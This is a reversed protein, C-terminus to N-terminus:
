SSPLERSDTSEPAQEQEERPRRHRSTTPPSPPAPPTNRTGYVGAAGLGAIALQQWDEVSLSGDALLSNALTLVAALTSVVLKAVPGSETNPVYWVGIVGAAVIAINTLEVPSFAHDGTLAVGLASAVATLLQARTKAYPSM